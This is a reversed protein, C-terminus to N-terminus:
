PAQHDLMAGTSYVHREQRLKRFRTGTNGFCPTHRETQPKSNGLAQPKSDSVERRQLRERKAGLYMLLPDFSISLLFSVLEGFCFSGPLFLIGRITRRSRDLSLAALQAFCRSGSWSELSMKGAGGSCLDVQALSSPMGGDSGHGPGFSKPDAVGAGLASESGAQVRRGHPVEGCYRVDLRSGTRAGTAKDREMQPATKINGTNEAVIHTTCGPLAGEMACSAGIKGELAETRQVVSVRGYKRTCFFRERSFISSLLDAFSNWVRDSKV